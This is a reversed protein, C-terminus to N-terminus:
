RVARRRSAIVVHRVARGTFPVSTRHRGIEAVGLARSVGAPRRAATSLRQAAVRRRLPPRGPRPSLNAVRRLKAPRSNRRASRM